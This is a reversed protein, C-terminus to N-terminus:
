IEAIDVAAPTVEAAVAPIDVAAVEAPLMGAVVVAAPRMDAVATARHMDAAVETVRRVDVATVQLPVRDATVPREAVEVTTATAAARIHALPRAVRSRSGCTLSRVRIPRDAVHCAMRTAAM